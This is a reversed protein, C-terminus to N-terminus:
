PEMPNPTLRQFTLGEVTLIHVAIDNNPKAWVFGNWWWLVLAGDKTSARMRRYVEVKNGPATLDLAAHARTAVLNPTVALAAAGALANRRTIPMM